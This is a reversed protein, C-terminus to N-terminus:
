EARTAVELTVDGYFCQAAEICWAYDVEVAIPAGDEHTFPLAVYRTSHWYDGGPVVDHAPLDARWGLTARPDPRVEIGPDTVLKATGEPTVAVQLVPGDPTREIWAQVDVSATEATLGDLLGGPAPAELAGPITGRSIASQGRAAAPLLLACLGAVCGLLISRSPTSM